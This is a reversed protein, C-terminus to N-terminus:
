DWARDNRGVVFHFELAAAIQDMATAAALAPSALVHASLADLRTGLARRVLSSIQLTAAPLSRLARLIM